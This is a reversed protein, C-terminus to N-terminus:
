HSGSVIADLASPCKRPKLDAKAASIAFQRPLGLRVYARILAHLKEISMERLPNATPKGSYTERIM